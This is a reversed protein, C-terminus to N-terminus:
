EAEPNIKTVKFIVDSRFGKSRLARTKQEATKNRYKELVRKAIEGEEKLSFNRLLKDIDKSPIKKEILKKKIGYFGFYKYKKLNEFFVGAYETDNLYKLEKLYTIAEDIEKESYKKKKLKERVSGESQIRLSLLFVAYDKASLSSLKIRKNGLTM